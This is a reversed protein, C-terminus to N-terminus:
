ADPMLSPAVVRSIAWIENTEATGLSSTPVPLFTMDSVAELAMFQRIAM